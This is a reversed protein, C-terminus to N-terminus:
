FDLYDGTFPLLAQARLVKALSLFVRATDFEKDTSFFHWGGGPCHFPGSAPGLPKPPASAPGTPDRAALSEIRAHYEPPPYIPLVLCAVVLDCLAALT